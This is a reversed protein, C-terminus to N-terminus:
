TFIRIPQFSDLEIPIKREENMARHKNHYNQVIQESKFFM